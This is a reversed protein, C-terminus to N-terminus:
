VTYLELSQKRVAAEPIRHSCCCPYDLSDWLIDGLIRRYGVGRDADSRM